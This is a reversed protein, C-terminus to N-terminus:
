GVWPCLCCTSVAPFLFDLVHGRSGAAKAVSSVWPCCLQMSWAPKVTTKSGLHKCEWGSAAQTGEGTRGEAWWLRSGASAALWDEAAAVLGVVYM